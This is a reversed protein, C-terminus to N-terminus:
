GTPRHVNVTMRIANFTLSGNAWIFAPTVSITGDSKATAGSWWHITIINRTAPVENYSSHGSFGTGSHQDLWAGWRGRPTSTAATHVFTITWDLTYGSGPVLGTATCKADDFTFTGASNITDGGAAGLGQGSVQFPFMQIASPVFLGKGGALTQVWGTTGPLLDALVSPFWMPPVSTDAPTYRAWVGGREARVVIAQRPLQSKAAEDIDEELGRFANFLDM